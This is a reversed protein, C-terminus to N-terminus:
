KKWAGYTSKVRTKSGRKVTAHKVTRSGKTTAGQYTEFTKSAGSLITSLTRRKASSAAFKKQNEIQDGEWRKTAAQLEFGQQASEADFMATLANYDGATKIGALNEAVGEDFAGGSAASAAQANSAVIAAKRREEGADKTGRAYAANAKKQLQESEFKAKVQAQRGEEKLAKSESYSSAASAVTGLGEVITPAFKILTQGDM